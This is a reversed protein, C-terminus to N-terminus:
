ARSQRAVLQPQEARTVVEVQLPRAADLHLARQPFPISVGAEALAKEAMFRLDSAIQRGDVGKAYDIWYELAFALGDAGFDEFIVRPPPQKLVQGHRDAQALLTDAVKRTDSGYAVAVKVSRRVESSSHTWNTVNSEVLASNPVLTEIGDATRITSSRISINTVTGLTDGIQVLDGIKLPREVLLMIGSMLNKMLNQAGFGFAIALAGGLFAFVTLPIKVVDLAIVFLVAVLIFHLWRRAIRAVNPDAKFRAVLQRELRRVFWSVVIYGLVLVVIAGISKGVTVSRTATVKRGDVELTDEATFLEFDWVQRAVSRSAFWADQAYSWLPRASRFGDFEEKWRRLSAEQRDIARLLREYISLRERYADALDRAAVRDDVLVADALRAEQESLQGLALTVERRAFERWPQLRKLLTDVREFTERYSTSDRVSEFAFRSHWIAREAALGDGLGRAVDAALNANEARVRALEAARETRLRSRATQEPSEGPRWPADQVAALDAQAKRLADRRAAVRTQAEAVERDLAAKERDLRALIGDLDERTFAVSKSAADSQREAFALAERREALQERAIETRMDLTAFGAALSRVRLQALDRAWGRLAADAGDQPGSAREEALRAQAELDKLRPRWSAIQEDHLALKAEAAKVREAAAQVGERLSDVLSLPHPGPGLGTWSKAKAALAARSRQTLALEDRADLQRAYAGALIGLLTRYEIVEQEPAGPPAKSASDATFRELEAQAGALKAKLEAETAPTAADPASKQGAGSIVGPLQQAPATACLALSFAFVSLTRVM